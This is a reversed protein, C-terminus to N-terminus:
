EFTTRVARASSDWEALSDLSVDIKAAMLHGLHFQDMELVEELQSKRAAVLESWIAIAQPRQWQRALMCALLHVPIAGRGSTAAAWLTTADLGVHRAMAGHMAGGTPNVQPNQMVETARLGYVRELNPVNPISDVFLAGLKRATVHIRGEEAERRRRKSLHKGIDRYEPAAEMRIISFDFGFNALAVTTEQVGSALSLGIRGISAM